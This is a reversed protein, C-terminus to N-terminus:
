GGALETAVGRAHAVVSALGTGATWAGTVRLAGLAATADAVVAQWQRQTPGAPPM